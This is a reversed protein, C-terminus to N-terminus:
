AELLFVFVEGPGHAGLVLTKEIDATRSPGTTLSILSPLDGQYKQRMLAFGDEINLVLQRTTAVVIQAPPYISLTRGASQKSSVLISGTRAILAECRAIGADAKDLKKGIKCARFDADAFLNQLKEDWCHLNRWGKKETLTRLDEILEAESECYVFQGGVETFREAFLLDVPQDDQAYIEKPLDENAFPMPDQRVLAKRIRTLIQEKASAM